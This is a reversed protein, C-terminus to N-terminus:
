VADLVIDNIRMRRSRRSILPPPGFFPIDMAFSMRRRRSTIARMQHILRSPPQALRHTSAPRASTGDDEEGDTLRGAIKVTGGEGPRKTLPDGVDPQDPQATGSHRRLTH